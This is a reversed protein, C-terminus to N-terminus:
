KGGHIMKEEENRNDVIMRICAYTDRRCARERIQDREEPGRWRERAHDLKQSPSPSDPPPNRPPVM